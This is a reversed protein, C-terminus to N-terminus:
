SVATLWSVPVSWDMQWLQMPKDRQWRKYDERRRRRPKGTVLQFRVLVRYISSRHPLPSM